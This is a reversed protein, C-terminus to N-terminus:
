RYTRIPPWCNACPPSSKLCGRFESMQRASDLWNLLFRRRRRENNISDPSTSLAELMNELLQIVPNEPSQITM